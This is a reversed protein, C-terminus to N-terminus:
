DFLRICRRVELGIFVCAILVVLIDRRFSLLVEILGRLVPSVTYLGVLVLSWGGITQASPM